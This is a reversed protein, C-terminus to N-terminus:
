IETSVEDQWGEVEAGEGVLKQTGVRRLGKKLGTMLSDNSM